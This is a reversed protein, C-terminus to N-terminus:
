DYSPLVVDRSNYGYSISQLNLIPCKNSHVSVCTLYQDDRSPNPFNGCSVIYIVRKGGKKQNTKLRAKRYARTMLCTIMRKIYMISLMSDRNLPLSLRM